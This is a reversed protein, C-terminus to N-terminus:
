ITGHHSDLYVTLNQGVLSGYSTVPKVMIVHNCMCKPCTILVGYILEINTLDAGCKSCNFEKTIYLPM